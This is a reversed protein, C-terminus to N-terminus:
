IVKYIYKSGKTTMKILDTESLSFPSPNIFSSISSKGLIGQILAHGFRFAATAFSNLINPNIKSDHWVQLIWLQSTLHGPGTRSLLRYWACIAAVWQIYCASILRMYFIFLNFSYSVCMFWAYRIKMLLLTGLKKTSDRMMGILSWGWCFKSSPLHLFSQSVASCM